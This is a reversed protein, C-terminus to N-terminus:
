YPSISYNLQRAFEQLADILVPKARYGLVRVLKECRKDSIIGKEKALYASKKTYGVAILDDITAIELLRKKYEVPLFECVM